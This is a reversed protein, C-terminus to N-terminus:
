VKMKDQGAQGEQSPYLVIFINLKLKGALTVPLSMYSVYVSDLFGGAFFRECINKEIESRILGLALCACMYVELVTKTPVSWQCVAGRVDTM